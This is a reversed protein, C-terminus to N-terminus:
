EEEDEVANGLVMDEIVDAIDDPPGDEDSAELDWPGYIPEDVIVEVGANPMRIKKVNAVEDQLATLIDYTYQTMPMNARVKSRELEHITTIPVKIILQNPASVTRWQRVEDLVALFEDGIHQYLEPVEKEKLVAISGDTLHVTVM